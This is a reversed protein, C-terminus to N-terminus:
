IVRPIFLFYIRCHYIKFFYHCHFFWYIWSSLYWMTVIMCFLWPLLISIFDMLTNVINAKTCFQLLPLLQSVCATGQSKNRVGILNSNIGVKVSSFLLTWLAHHQPFCWMNSSPNLASRVSCVWTSKRRGCKGARPGLKGWLLDLLGFITQSLGKWSLGPSSSVFSSVVYGQKISYKKNEM